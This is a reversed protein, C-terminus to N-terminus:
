LKNSNLIVGFTIIIFDRKKNFVLHEKKNITWWFTTFTGDGSYPSLMIDSGHVVTRQLWCHRVM